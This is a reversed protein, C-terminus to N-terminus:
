IISYILITHVIMSRHICQQITSNVLTISPMVPGIALASGTAAGVGTSSATGAGGPPNASHFPQSIM